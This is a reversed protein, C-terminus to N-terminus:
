KGTPPTRNGVITLSGGTGRRKMVRVRLWPSIMGECGQLTRLDRQETAVVSLPLAESHPLTGETSGVTMQGLGPLAGPLGRARWGM